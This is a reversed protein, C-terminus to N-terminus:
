GSLLEELKAFAQELHQPKKLVGAFLDGTRDFRDMANRLHFDAPKLSAKLERWELPTAVPAGAHARPVYPASITKGRANQLYDFYVKGPDRKGVARPLTFLDPREAAVIRALVEAIGRSQDYSYIPELPVYIHLGNGGTTKPYGTLELLDLKHRILLAAEIIKAYACEYPDLDILIFDPHDLTELRSMWPNQDICGLNALYLLDAREGGIIQERQEHSEALINATRVWTPFGEAANKQFFGPQGIGDPYRRLSLPRDALHPLLFDAVAAYYNIVERKAIADDPYYVKSLNTFKLRHGSITLSVEEQTPPLFAERISAAVLPARVCEIPDVDNRLRIFVPARLRGESTWEHYAVTAVLQPQAFVVDRPFKIVEGFPSQSTELPELRKALSKLLPGDFGSGVTGAYRLQNGEYVGMLLSGFPAREGAMRGAIVIDQELRIKLKVWDRARDGTYRSDRHKAVVGELGQAKAAAMLEDVGTAFHESFRLHPTTEILARLREKREILPLDRLDQGGAYLLDFAIFVVPNSRAMRAIASTGSAMIRPQLKEFSPRGFDDLACIEGDLIATPTKVATALTDLEPYQRDFVTGRRGVLRVKGDAIYCLARVGDWKIEYLWQESRPTPGLSALMPTLDEPMKAATRAPLDAAIEDQTRGTAVSHAFQEIDWGAQAAADKKKLLLWEDDQGTKIRVLAFEGQVKQGHLRFKFDGRALQGEAALDGLVEFTGTDWLMMSGAGYNGKPINGEFTAYILPHDEVHVAFRKISPDLTPGQPVAWSKLTGGIELRLDYHLRRAAHRQICFIKHGGDGSSSMQPAPEPTRKFERKRAYDELAM